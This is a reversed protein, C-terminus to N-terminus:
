RSAGPAIETHRASVRSLHHEAVLTADLQEVATRRNLEDGHVLLLVQDTIEPLARLVHRKHTPDLRGFPSDTIIPGSMPSCRQLAAILSLAVVHEYGSSRNIVPTNDSHLITLGYNDNIRLRDYDPEASLVKFVETASEEVRDRLRDRFETVADALLDHLRSVLETRRDEAGTGAAGRRQLQESLKVVAANQRNLEQRKATLRDKTNILSNTTSAHQDVISRLQDEDGGSEHLEENIERLRSQADSLDVRSQATDQELKRVLAPQGQVAALAARRARLRFIEAELRDPDDDPGFTQRLEDATEAAIEQRCTPCRGTVVATAVQEARVGARHRHQLEELQEDLRSLAVSVTPAVVARWVSGSLRHLAEIAADRRETLRDVQEHQADRAAILRQFRGVTSLRKDLDAVSAQLDEMQKQLAAAEAQAGAAEEWAIQLQNGLDRTGRDHQAAKAQARRAKSLLAAVDDRAATLVPLGLVREIAAKLKDGADTNSTLLQEYEQLLEADFLFFRATQEPLLRGLEREREEPGLVDGDRVLSLRQYFDDAAAAGQTPDRRAFERSLQYDRGDHTFRLVTKFPQPITADNDRNGVSTLELPSSGRGLVQGFLAFRVANLFSTKGRGNEGWILEVGPRDAFDYRQTGRYPGFDTLEVSNLRLM